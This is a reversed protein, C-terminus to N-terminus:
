ARHAARFLKSETAVDRCAREILPGLIERTVWPMLFIAANNKDDNADYILGASPEGPVAAFSLGSETAAARMLDLYEGSM